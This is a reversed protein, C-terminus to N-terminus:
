GQKRRKEELELKLIQDQIRQVRIYWFSFGFLTLLFGIMVGTRCSWMYVVFTDEIMWIEKVIVISKEFRPRFEIASSRIAEVQPRENTDWQILEAESLEFWNMWFAKSAEDQLPPQMLNRLQSHHLNLHEYTHERDAYAVSFAFSDQLTFSELEQPTLMLQEHAVKSGFKAHFEDLIESFEQELKLRAAFSEANRDLLFYFSAIIAAIGGVCLFKYLNDTPPQLQM